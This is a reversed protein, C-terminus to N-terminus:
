FFFKMIVYLQDGIENWFFWYFKANFGDPRPSKSSLLSLLAQYVENKSAEKTLIACDDNSIIPLDNLLTQLIGTFNVNCANTWMDTFYNLFMYEIAERHTYSNGHKDCIHHIVSYHNHM